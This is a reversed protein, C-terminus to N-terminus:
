EVRWVRVGGDVNRARLKCDRKKQATAVQSAFTKVTKGPVFFSDGVELSSWPYKANRTAEPIPIGSEIPFSTATTTQATEATKKTKAM